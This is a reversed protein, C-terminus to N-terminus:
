AAVEVYEVCSEGAPVATFEYMMEVSARAAPIFLGVLRMMLASVASIRPEVGLVRCAEEVM